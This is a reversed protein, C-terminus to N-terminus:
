WKGLRESGAGVLWSAERGLGVLLAHLAFVFIRGLVLIFVLLWVSLWCCVGRVWIMSVTVNFEYITIWVESCCGVFLWGYLRVVRECIVLWMWWAICAGVCVIVGGVWCILILLGILKWTCLLEAKSSGTSDKLVDRFKSEGGRNAGVWTEVRLNAM